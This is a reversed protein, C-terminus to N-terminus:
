GPHEWTSFMSDKKSIATDCATCDALLPYHWPMPATVTEGSERRLTGRVPLADHAAQGALRLQTAQQDSM